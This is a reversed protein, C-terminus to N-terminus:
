EAEGDVPSPGNRIGRQDIQDHKAGAAVSSVAAPAQPDLGFLERLANAYDTGATEAALQKVRVTPAHLLKDVVRRVTRALEDRVDTDLDPLRNDLRLLEADVVEAARRRLATVTPTVEASRQGALYARVEDLIIGAARATQKATSTDGEADMRRRVTELDVLTVGAHDAVAPDVDRPLGLDCIVLPRGARAPVHEPLLVAGQAGTCAVVVDAAAVASALEAMPVASAPVGQEACAAALREANAETRNAVIVGGVGAKRLQAAALAGMSGAGVILARRGALDGAAALAESVVSAGLAGLGTETHVRKGVRLTSQILEHLTRGVTGAERATAYAARVQGLIQTEGVVMSDLGAAVSFVHEVAAGAYHVYLNDYLAAPELGAQRGLVDVADALGGHFTEVVAYVEIRNCTSVVMVEGIHPAQQLEHLVKTLEAAPVAVRELTALDATRHSLGIVLVSM